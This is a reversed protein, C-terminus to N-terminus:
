DSHRDGYYLVCIMGLSPIPYIEMIHGVFDERRELKSRESGREGQEEGGMVEGELNVTMRVDYGEDFEDASEIEFEYQFGSCGGADVGVRLHLNPDSKSSM